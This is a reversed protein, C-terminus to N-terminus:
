AGIILTSLSPHPSSLVREQESGTLAHVSATVHFDTPLKEWAWVWPELLGASISKVTLLTVKEMIPSEPSGSHRFGLCISLHSISQHVATSEITRLPIGGARDEGTGPGKLSTSAEHQRSYGEGLVGSELAWNWKRETWCESWPCLSKNPSYGPNWTGEGGRIQPQAM